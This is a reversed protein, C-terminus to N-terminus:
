NASRLERTSGRESSGQRSAVGLQPPPLATDGFRTIKKPLLAYRLGNSPGGVVTRIGANRLRASKPRLRTDGISILAFHWCAVDRRSM